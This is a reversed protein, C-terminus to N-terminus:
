WIWIVVRDSGGKIMEGTTEDKGAPKGNKLKWVSMEVETRGIPEGRFEDFGCM